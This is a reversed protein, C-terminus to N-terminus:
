FAGTGGPMKELTVEDGPKSGAHKARKESIQVILPKGEVTKTTMTTFSTKKSAEASMIVLKASLLISSMILRSVLVSSGAGTAITSFFAIYIGQSFKAYSFFSHVCFYVAIFTVM